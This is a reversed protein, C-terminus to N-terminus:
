QEVGILQRIRSGRYTQCRSQWLMEEKHDPIASEGSSTGGLSSTLSRQIIGSDRDIWPLLASGSGGRCVLRNRSDHEITLQRAKGDM